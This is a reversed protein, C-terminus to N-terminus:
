GTDMAGYVLPFLYSPSHLSPMFFPLSICNSLEILGRLFNLPSKTPVLFVLSILSLSGLYFGQLYSISLPRSNSLCGYEKMTNHFM